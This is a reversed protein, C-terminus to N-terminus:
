GPVRGDVVVEGDALVEVVEGGDQVGAPGGAGAAAVLTVRAMASTSRVAWASARAPLREPPWRLRTERATARSPVGSSRTRSSGVTPRSGTRRRSRHFRKWVRAASRPAVRRTEEWTMSSASRQWRSSRIRSPRMRASPCGSARRSRVPEAVTSSAKRWRTSSAPAVPRGRLRRRGCWGWPTLAIVVAGRGPVAGGAAARVASWRRGSDGDRVRAVAARTRRWSRWSGRVM